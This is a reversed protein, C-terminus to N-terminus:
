GELTFIRTRNGNPGGSLNVFPLRDLVMKPTSDEMHVNYFASGPAFLERVLAKKNTKNLQSNIQDVSFLLTVYGSVNLISDILNDVQENQQEDKMTPM